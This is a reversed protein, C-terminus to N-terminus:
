NEQILEGHFFFTIQRFIVWFVIFLIIELKRGKEKKWWRETRQEDWFCLKTRLRLLIKDSLFLFLQHFSLFSITQLFKHQVVDCMWVYNIVNCFRYALFVSCLACVSIIQNLIFISLFSKFMKTSSTFDFCSNESKESESRPFHLPSFFTSTSPLVFLYFLIFYIKKFPYVTQLLLNQIGATLIFWSLYIWHFCRM